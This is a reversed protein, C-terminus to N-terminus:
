LTPGSIKSPKRCRTRSQRDQDFSVFAPDNEPKKIKELKGVVNGFKPIRPAPDSSVVPTIRVGRSKVKHKRELHERLNEEVTFSIPCQPCRHRTGSKVTTMQVPEEEYGQFVQDIKESIVDKVADREDESM